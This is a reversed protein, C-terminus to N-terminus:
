EQLKPQDSTAPLVAAEAEIERLQEPSVFGVRRRPTDTRLIWAIQEMEEKSALRKDEYFSCESVPFRIKREIYFYRCFVEEESARFGKIIHARSCTRCLSESGEPTGGKVKITVM